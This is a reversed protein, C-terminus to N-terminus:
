LLIQFNVVKDRYNFSNCIKIVIIPLLDIACSLVLICPVDLSLRYHTSNNNTLCNHVCAYTRISYSYVLIEM